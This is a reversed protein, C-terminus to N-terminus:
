ATQTGLEEIKSIVRSLHQIHANAQVTAADVLCNFSTGSRSITAPFVYCDLDSRLEVPSFEIDWGSISVSEPTSMDKLLM